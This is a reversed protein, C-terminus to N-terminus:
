STFNFLNSPLSFEKHQLIFCAIDNEEAPVTVMEADVIKFRAWGELDM